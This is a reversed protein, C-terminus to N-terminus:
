HRRRMNTTMVGTGRLEGRLRNIRSQIFGIHKEMKDISLMKAQQSGEGSDFRYSELGADLTADLATNYKALRAIYTALESEKEARVTTSLCSM